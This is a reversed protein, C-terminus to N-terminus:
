QATAVDFDFNAQWANAVAPKGDESGGGANLDVRSFTTRYPLNELVSVLQYMNAYSGESKVIIHLEQFPAPLDSESEIGVPQINCDVGVDSCVKEITEIITFEQGQKIFFSNLKSLDDAEEAMRKAASQQGSNQIFLNNTQIDSQLADTKDEFDGVKMIGFVYVGLLALFLISLLSLSLMHPIKKM